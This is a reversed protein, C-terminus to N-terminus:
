DAGQVGWHRQLHHRAEGGGDDDDRQVALTTTYVHHLRPTLLTHSPPRPPPLPPPRRAHPLHVPPCASACAPLCAAATLSKSQSERCAGPTSRPRCRSRSRTSKATWAWACARRLTPPPWRHTHTHPPPPCRPPPSPALGAATREARPGRAGGEGRGEGCVFSVCARRSVRGRVKDGLGVVFKAIQKINIVYKADDTNPNIIKTCRAVQPISPPPTEHFPLPRPPPFRSAAPLSRLHAM